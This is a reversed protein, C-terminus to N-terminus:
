LGCAESVVLFELASLCDFSSCRPAFVRFLLECRTAMDGFLMGCANAAENVVGYGMGTEQKVLRLRDFGSNGM